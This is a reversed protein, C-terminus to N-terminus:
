IGKHFWIDYWEVQVKSIACTYGVNRRNKGKSRLLVFALEILGEVTKTLLRTGPQKDTPMCRAYTWMKTASEHFASHINSLVTVLSNHATDLFM